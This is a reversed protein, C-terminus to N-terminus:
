SEYTRGGVRLTEDWGGGGEFYCIEGTSGRECVQREPTPAPVDIGHPRTSCDGTDAECTTLETETLFFLGGGSTWGVEYPPQEVTVAEGTEVDYVEFDEAGAAATMDEVVVMLYRGDPSLDAWSDTDDDNVQPVALLEDGSAVDVVTAEDPDARVMRGGTVAPIGPDIEDTPTATGTRWDVLYPQPSSGVWVRDGDLAVPPANWGGGTAGDPLVVTAVEDDTRLDHVTVEYTGGAAPSAYALYPEDPDTGPVTEETVIGIPSVTGDPRVLSFRQPGGGDSNQNEGHRVLVGASTYFLSKVAKDDIRAEEAGGDLYVTTGLSFVPGLDTAPAAPDVADGGDGASLTDVALVGGGVALVLALAGVGSTLRRRRRAGRGAALVARADPAPVDLGAAEDHLLQALRETM